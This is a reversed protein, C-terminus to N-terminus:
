GALEEFPKILDSNSYEYEISGLTETYLWSPDGYIVSFLYLLLNYEREKDRAQAKEPSDFFYFFAYDNEDGDWVKVYCDWDYVDDTDESHFFTFGADEYARVLEECTPETKPKGQCSVLGVALVSIM